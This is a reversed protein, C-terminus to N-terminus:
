AQLIAAVLPEITHDQARYSRVDEVWSTVRAMGIEVSSAIVVPAGAAPVISVIPRSWNYWRLTWHGTLYRHNPESTVLLGDLGAKEMLARARRLREQYESAPFDSIKSLAGMGDGAKATM